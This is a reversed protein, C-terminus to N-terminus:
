AGEQIDPHAAELESLWARRRALRILRRRGVKFSPLFPLGARKAPDKNIAKYILSRCVGSKRPRRSRNPMPMRRSGAM